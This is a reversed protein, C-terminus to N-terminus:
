FSQYDDFVQMQGTLQATTGQFQVLLTSMNGASSLTAITYSGGVVNPTTVPPTTTTGSTGSTTTTTPTTSTQNGGSCRVVAVCILVAILSVALVRM